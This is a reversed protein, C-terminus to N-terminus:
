GAVRREADIPEIKDFEERHIDLSDWIDINRQLNLWYTPTTGFLRSLTPRAM